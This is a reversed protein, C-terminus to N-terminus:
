PVYVMKRKSVVKENFTSDDKFFLYRNKFLTEDCWLPKDILTNGELFVIDENYCPFGSHEDIITMDDDILINDKLLIILFTIMDWPGM